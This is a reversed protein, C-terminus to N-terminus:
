AGNQMIIRARYRRIKLSFDKQVRIFTLIFPERLTNHVHSNIDSINFIYHTNSSFYPLIVTFPNLKQSTVSYSKSPSLGVEM